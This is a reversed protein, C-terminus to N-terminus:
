GVSRRGKIAACAQGRILVDMGIDFVRQSPCLRLLREDESAPRGDPLDLDTADNIAGAPRGKTLAFPAPGM